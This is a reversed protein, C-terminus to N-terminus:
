HRHSRLRVSVMQKLVVDRYRWGGLARRTAHLQRVAASMIEVTQNELYRLFM